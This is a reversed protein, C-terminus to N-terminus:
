MKGVKGKTKTSEDMWDLEDLILDFERRIDQVMELMAQKSEEKFHKRVYMSGVPSSFSGTAAGAFLYNTFSIQCPNTSVKYM